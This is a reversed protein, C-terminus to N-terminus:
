KQRIAKVLYIVFAIFATISIVFLVAPLIDGKSVCQGQDNIKGKRCTGSQWIACCKPDSKCLKASDCDTANKASSFIDKKLAFM